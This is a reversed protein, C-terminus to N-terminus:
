EKITALLKAHRLALRVFESQTMGLQESAVKLAEHESPSLNISVARRTNPKTTGKPRGPRRKQQEMIEGKKTAHINRCRTYILGSKNDISLIIETQISAGIKFIAWIQHM